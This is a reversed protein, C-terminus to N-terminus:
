QRGEAWNRAQARLELALDEAILPSLLQEAQPSDSFIRMPMPQLNLPVQLEDAAIEEWIARKYEDAEAAAQFGYLRRSLCHQLCLLLCFSSTDVAQEEESALCEDRAM